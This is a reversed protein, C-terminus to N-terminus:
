ASREKTEDIIYEFSWRDLKPLPCPLARPSVWFLGDCGESAVMARNITPLEPCPLARPSGWFLGDSSSSAVM